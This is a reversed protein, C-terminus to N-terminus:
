EYEGGDVLEISNVICVKSVEYENWSKCIKCDTYFRNVDKPEIISLSCEGDKSQWETLEEGCKKCPAKYKVYDFMGM